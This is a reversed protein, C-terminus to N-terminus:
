NINSCRKEKEEKKQTPHPRDFLIPKMM